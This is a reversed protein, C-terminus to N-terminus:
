KGNQRFGAQAAYTQGGLAFRGRERALHAVECGERLVDEKHFAKRADYFAGDLGSWVASHLKDLKHMGISSFYPDVTTETSLFSDSDAKDLVFGISERKNWLDIMTSHQIKKLADAYQKKVRKEKQGFIVRGFAGREQYEVNLIEDAEIVEKELRTIDDRLNVVEAKLASVVPADSKAYIGTITREFESLTEYVEAMQLHMTEIAHLEKEALKENLTTM